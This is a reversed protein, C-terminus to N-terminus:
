VSCGHERYFDGNTKQLGSTWSTLIASLFLIFLLISLYPFFASWYSTIFNPKRKEVWKNMEYKIDSLLDEDAIETRISLDGSYQETIELSFVTYGNELHVTLREPKFSDIHRDKLLEALNTGVLKKNDRQELTITKSVRDYPYYRKLKEIVEDITENGSKSAQESAKLRLAKDAAENLLKYIAEITDSLTEFDELRLVWPGKFRSDRSSLLQAM